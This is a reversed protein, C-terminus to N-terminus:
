WCNAPPTRAGTQNVTMVNCATDATAQNGLASARATFTSATPSPISFSYQAALDAQCQQSAAPLAGSAYSMNTTYVREMYQAQEMLCGQAANRRGKAVSSTYSGYAMRALVGAIVIVVLLEILTFGRQRKFHLNGQMTNIEYKWSQRREAHEVRRALNCPYQTM